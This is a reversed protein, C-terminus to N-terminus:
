RCCVSVLEEYGHAQTLTVALLMAMCTGMKKPSQQQRLQWLPTLQEIQGLSGKQCQLLRVDGTEVAEDEIKVGLKLKKLEQVVGAV